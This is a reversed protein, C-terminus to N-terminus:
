EFRVSIRNVRYTEFLNAFKNFIGNPDGWKSAYSALPSVNGVQLNYGNLGAVFRWAYLEGPVSSAFVRVPLFNVVKTTVMQLTM